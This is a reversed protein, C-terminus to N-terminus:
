GSRPLVRCIAQGRRRTPEPAGDATLRVVLERRNDWNRDRSVLQKRELNAVLRLM